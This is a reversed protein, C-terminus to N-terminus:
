LLGAFLGLGAGAILGGSIQLAANGQVRHLRLLTLAAIAGCAHLLATVTLLGGAYAIGNITTAAENGHAHGHFLGSLGVILATVLTGSRPAVLLLGFIVLSTTIATEVFPLAMGTIGALMGLATMAVFAVPLHWLSPGGLRGALLGVATMALLHDLGGLAHAFGQLLGDVHGTGTHAMALSPIGTALLTAISPRNPTRRM